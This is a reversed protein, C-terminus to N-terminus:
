TSYFKIKSPNAVSDDIKCWAIMDLRNIYDARRAHLYAVADNDADSVNSSLVFGILSPNTGGSLQIGDEYIAWAGTASDITLAPVVWKGRPDASPTAVLTILAGNSLSLQAQYRNIGGQNVYGFTMIIKSASNSASYGQAILPHYCNTDYNTSGTGGNDPAIYMRGIITLPRSWGAFSLGTKVYWNNIGTSALRFDLQSTDCNYKTLLRVKEAISPYGWHSGTTLNRCKFNLYGARSIAFNDATFSIRESPDIAISAGDVDVSYSDGIVRALIKHSNPDFNGANKVIVPFYTASQGVKRVLGSFLLVSNNSYHYLSFPMGSQGADAYFISKNEDAVTNQHEAEFEFDDNVWDQKKCWVQFGYWNEQETAFNRMVTSPQPGDGDRITSHWAGGFSPTVCMVCSPDKAYEIIKQINNSM